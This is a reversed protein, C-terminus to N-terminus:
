FLESDHLLLVPQKRALGIVGGHCVVNYDRGEIIGVLFIYCRRGIRKGVHVASHLFRQRGMDIPGYLAFM